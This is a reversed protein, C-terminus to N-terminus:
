SKFINTNPIAISIQNDHLPVPDNDVSTSNGCKLPILNWCDAFKLKYSLSRARTSDYYLAKIDVFIPYSYFTQHVQLYIHVLLKQLIHPWPLTCRLVKPKRRANEVIRIYDAPVNIRQDGIANEITSHISLMCRPTVRPWYKKVSQIEM